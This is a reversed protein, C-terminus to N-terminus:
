EEMPIYPEWGLFEHKRSCAEDWSDTEVIWILKANSELFRRAIENGEAFFSYSVVDEDEAQWLEYKM